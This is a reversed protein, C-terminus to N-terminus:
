NALPDTLAPRNKGLDGRHVECECAQRYQLSKGSASSFDDAPHRASSKGPLLEWFNGQRLSM